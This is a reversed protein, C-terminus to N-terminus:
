LGVKIQICCFDEQHENDYATTDLFCFDYANSEAKLGHEEMYAVVRQIGAPDYPMGWRSLCLYVGAPLVEVRDIKSIDVGQPVVVYPEAGELPNEKHFSERKLMTGWGRMPLEGVQRQMNALAKMLTLHLVGRGLGDSQPFPETVVYREAFSHLMPKGENQRWFVADDYFNLRDCVNARERQLDAIQADLARVRDGLHKTMVGIDFSSVLRDVEDLEIGLGVLIRILRLLPIQTPAYYRYGKENVAAPKFLGIRDYYILTQRSIDFISAMESVTYMGEM